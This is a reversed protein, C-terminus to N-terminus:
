GALLGRAALLRRLHLDARARHRLTAGTAPADTTLADDTLASREAPSLEAVLLEMEALIAADTPNLPSAPNAATAAARTREARLLRYHAVFAELSSYAPLSM